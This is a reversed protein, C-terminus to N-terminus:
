RRSSRAPSLRVRTGLTSISHPFMRLGVSARSSTDALKWSCTALAISAAIM